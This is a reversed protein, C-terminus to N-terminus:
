LSAAYFAAVNPQRHLGAVFTAFASREIATVHGPLEPEFLALYSKQANERAQPRQDRLRDLSSGPQVGALHDIVDSIITSM